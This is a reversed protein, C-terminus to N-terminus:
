ANRHRWTQVNQESNSQSNSTKKKKWIYKLIAKEIETCFTMPIKIPIINLMYIAKPLKAIKVINIRGIWSCPLAKWRRIDEEM